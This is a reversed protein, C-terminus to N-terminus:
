LQNYYKLVRLARLTNWRSPQGGTEMDFFVKGSHKAQLPWLGTPKRKSILLDIADQMREDYPINAYQFYDLCRLIDYKWRSPYSLRTFTDKIVTGTKDSKYLRHQLIFENSEKEIQTLEAIKYKYSNKKFENIGELVSLTTHLSSHKAGIRTSHCNFGGDSMQNEIIYNVIPVLLIEKSKFYSAFNLVMGNICVDNNVSMEYKKTFGHKMEKQLVSNLINKVSKTSPSICLNKLELLTYHTSTWKPQYYALGWHGNKNQHSLYQAGWGEKAIKSQLQKKEQGLLDRYVQYQISPDGELLWSIIQDNM